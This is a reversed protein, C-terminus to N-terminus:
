EYGQVYHAVEWNTDQTMASEIQVGEETIVSIEFKNIARADRYFLIKLCERLLKVAEVKDMNPNKECANRMLPRSIYAGYGTAIHEDQYAVGLKDVYGLYGKGEKYGGIVMTCWLPDFKSRRNYLWIRLYAYISEPSYQYGDDQIDNEIMMTELGEKIHQYDAYDGSAAVVTTDNVKTMRSVGPFRALSGYSGLMDCALAVGGNFKIGLVSTGTTIPHQSRQTGNTHGSAFQQQGPFASKVGPAPYFTPGQQQFAM